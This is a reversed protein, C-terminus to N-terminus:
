VRQVSVKKRQKNRKQSSGFFLSLKTLSIEHLRDANVIQKYFNQNQRDSFVPGEVIHWRKVLEPDHTTYTSSQVQKAKKPKPESFHGKFDFNDPQQRKTMYGGGWM